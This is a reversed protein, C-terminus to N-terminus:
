QEKRADLNLRTIKNQSDFYTIDILNKSLNKFDDQTLDWQIAPGNFANNITTVSSVISPFLNLKKVKGNKIMDNEYMIPSRMAIDFTQKDVSFDLFDLEINQVGFVNTSFNKNNRLQNLLEDYAKVTIKTSHEVTPTKQASLKQIFFPAQIYKKKHLMKLDDYEQNSLSYKLLYCSYYPTSGKNEVRTTIYLNNKDEGIRYSTSYCKLKDNKIDSINHGQISLFAFPHPNYSHSHSLKQEYNDILSNYEEDKLM